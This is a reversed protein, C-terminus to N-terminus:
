GDDKSNGDAGDEDFQARGRFRPDLASGCSRRPTQSGPRDSASWLSLHESILGSGHLFSFLFPSPKWFRIQPMFFGCFHLFPTWLSGKGVPALKPALKPRPPLDLFMGTPDIPIHRCRASECPLLSKKSFSHTRSVKSDWHSSASYHFM